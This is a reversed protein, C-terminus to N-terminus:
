MTIHGFYFNRSSHKGEIIDRVSDLLLSISSDSEPKEWFYIVLFILSLFIKNVSIVFTYQGRGFQTSTNILTSGSVTM